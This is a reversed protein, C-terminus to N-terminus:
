GIRAMLFAWRPRYSAKSSAQSRRARSAGRSGPDCSQRACLSGAVIPRVNLMSNDELRTRFGPRSEGAPENQAQGRCIALQTPFPRVPHTRVLASPDPRGNIGGVGRLRRRARERFPNVDATPPRWGGDNAQGAHHPHAADVYYGGVCVGAGRQRYPQRNVGGVGKADPIGPTNQNKM